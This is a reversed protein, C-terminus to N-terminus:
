RSSSSSESKKAHEARRNIVSLQSSYAANESRHSDEGGPGGVKPTPEWYAVCASLSAVAAVSAAFIVYRIM